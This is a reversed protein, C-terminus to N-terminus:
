AAVRRFGHEILEEPILERLPVIRLIQPADEILLLAAADVDHTANLLGITSAEAIAEIFNPYNKVWSKANMSVNVRADTETKVIEASPKMFLGYLETEFLSM